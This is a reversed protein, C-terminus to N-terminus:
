WERGGCWYWKGGEGFGSWGLGVGGGGYFGSQGRGLGGGSGWGRVRGWIGGESRGREGRRRKGEECRGGLGDRGVGGMRLIDSVVVGGLGLCSHSTMRGSWAPASSFRMLTRFHTTLPIIVPFARLQNANSAADGPAPASPQPPTKPKPHNTKGGEMEEAM